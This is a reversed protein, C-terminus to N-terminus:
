LRNLGIEVLEEEPTIGYLLRGDASLSIFQLKKDTKLTRCHAGSWDFVRIENGPAHLAYIFDDTCAAAYYHALLWEAPNKRDVTEYEVLDKQKKYKQETVITYSDEGALDLINVKDLSRMCIAMKTGDPKLCDETAFFTYDRAHDGEGFILYRQLLEGGSGVLLYCVGHEGRLQKCLLRGDGLDFVRNCNQPINREAVVTSEAVDITMMVALNIESVSVLMRGDTERVSVFRPMMGEGPGRGSFVLPQLVQEEESLLAFNWPRNSYSLLLSEGCPYVGAVGMRVGEDLRLPSVVLAHEEQPVSVVVRAGDMFLNGSTCGALVALQIFCFLRRM